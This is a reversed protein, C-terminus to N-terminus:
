KPPPQEATGYKDPPNWDSMLCQWEGFNDKHCNGTAKPEDYIRCNKGVNYWLKSTIQAVCSYKKLSGRIQYVMGEPDADFPRGAGPMEKYPTGKGVEVKVDQLLYLTGGKVGEANCILYRRAQDSSPAGKAPEKMSPCTAAERSGYKAGVGQQATAVCALTLIGMFVKM